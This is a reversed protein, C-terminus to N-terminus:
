RPCREGLSKGPKWPMCFSALPCVSPMEALRIFYGGSTVFADSNGFLTAILFLWELTVSLM